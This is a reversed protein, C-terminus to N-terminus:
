LSQALKLPELIQQIEEDSIYGKSPPSFCILATEYCARAVRIREQATLKAVMEATEEVHDVDGGVSSHVRLCRTARSNSPLLNEVKQIYKADISLALREMTYSYGVCDIPESDQVSRSLYDILTVVAPSVLVKVVVEADYRLSRIDRLALLDHGREEMAKQRAWNALTSHNAEEFRQAAKEILLPYAHGLHYQSALRWVWRTATLAPPRIDSNVAYKAAAVAGDLLKSTTAISGAVEMPQSFCNNKSLPRYLWSRDETAVIVKDPAIQAWEANTLDTATRDSTETAFPIKDAQKKATNMNIHYEMLNLFILQVNTTSDM